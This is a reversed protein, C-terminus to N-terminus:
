LVLGKRNIIINRKYLYDIVFDFCSNEAGIFEPTLIGQRSRHRTLQNSELMLNAVAACTYGTTRSMSHTKTIKDYEDYLDYEIDDNMCIKMITLDEDDENLKWQNFLTNMGEQTDLLGTKILMKMLEAHGPYRLTKEKLNPIHDFTRLLTRLGDTNFAELTGIPNINMEEIETLAPRIITSGHKKLRAPRTYEEMVDIPSFSAKYEFPKIRKKPLGGVYCEFSTIRQRTNEYGLILNSLGPAVGCDVVALVNNKVALDQLLFPDEPFFSIDVVDSGTEIISKLTEFGINGPVASIVLDYKKLSQFYREDSLYWTTLKPYRKKATALGMASIDAITVDYKESLDDAIVSGVRGAGIVTIKKM